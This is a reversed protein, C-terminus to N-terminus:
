TGRLEEILFWRRKGTEPFWIQAIRAHLTIVFGEVWRGASVCHALVRDGKFISKAGTMTSTM